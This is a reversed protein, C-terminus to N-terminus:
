IYATAAFELVESVIHQWISKSAAHHAFSAQHKQANM